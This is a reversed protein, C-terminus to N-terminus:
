LGQQQQQLQMAQLQATMADVRAQMASSMAQVQQQLAGMQQHMDALQQKLQQVEQQKEHHLNIAHAATAAAAQLMSATASEDWAGEGHVHEQFGQMLKQPM